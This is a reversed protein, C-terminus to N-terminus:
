TPREIRAGRLPHGVPQDNLLGDLSIAITCINVEDPHHVCVFGDAFEAGFWVRGDTLHLRFPKPHDREPVPSM